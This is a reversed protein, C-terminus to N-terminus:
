KDCKFGDINFLIVLKSYCYEFDNLQSCVLSRSSMLLLTISLSNM